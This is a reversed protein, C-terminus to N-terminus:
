GRGIAVAIEMAKRGDEATIEPARGEQICRIFYADQQHHGWQKAGPQGVNWETKAPEDSFLTLSNNWNTHIIRNADGIVEMSTMSVSPASSGSYQMCVVVGNAMKLSVCADYGLTGGHQPLPTYKTEAHVNEVESDLLWRFLDISWVALTYLPGGSEEVNWVWAGPPWQKALDAAPILERYLIACPDGITGEQIMSKAKVFPPTFRFTLSPMLFLGSQAAVDIL